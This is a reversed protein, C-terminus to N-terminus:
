AICKNSFQFSSCFRTFNVVIRFHHAWSVSPIRFARLCKRSSKSFTFMWLLLIKNHVNNDDLYFFNLIWEYITDIIAIAYKWGISYAFSGKLVNFLPHTDISDTILTFGNIRYNKEKEKGIRKSTQINIPESTNRRHKLCELYHYRIFIAILLRQFYIVFMRYMSKHHWRWFKRM